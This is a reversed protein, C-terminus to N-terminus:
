GRERLRLPSSELSLAHGSDGDWVGVFGNADGTVVFVRGEQDPEDAAVESFDVTAVRVDHGRLVHLEEGSGVDWIRATRDQGSTALREGDPSFVVDTIEGVHGEMTAVEDLDSDWVVVGGDDFGGALRSGDKSWDLSAYRRRRATRAAAARGM